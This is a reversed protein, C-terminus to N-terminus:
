STLRRNFVWFIGNFDRFCRPDEATNGPIVELGFDSALRQVENLVASDVELIATAGGLHPPQIDEAPSFERVGLTSDDLFFTVTQEDQRTMPLGLITHYLRVTRPLDTTFLLSPGLTPSRPGRFFLDHQLLILGIWQNDRFGAYTIEGVVNFGCRLNLAISIPNTALVEVILTRYGLRRADFIQRQKLQWGITKRRWDRHVFFSGLATFRYASRESIPVVLSWGVLGGEAHEAVTLAVGPSALYKAFRDENVFHEDFTANRDTIAQNYIEAVASLDPQTAPRFM